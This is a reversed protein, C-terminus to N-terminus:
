SFKLSLPLGLKEFFAHNRQKAEDLLKSYSVFEVYARYHRKYGFFGQGDPTKELEAYRAYEELRNTKDAVIYCYFHVGESIPIPRKEPTLAKGARIEEIYDLVQKFPNEDDSYATRMPRKFEIITISQFPGMTVDTFACAKDFIILDLESKSANALPETKQLQKDSALYRHYALKEDLLWLNHREFPVEDSTAGMPFILRHVKDELAYKGGDQISLLKQLFQLVLKRDFVYRALDSQNVDSIKSFYESFQRAYAEFEEDGDASEFLERGEERLREQLSHLAKYLKLDLESDEVEPDLLAVENEVHKLIPRYMPGQTAVFREIRERKQKQISVTFPTLFSSVQECASSRLNSWTLGSEFLSGEESSLSFDTREQNATDDLIQGDLYGAYVFEKGAEDHMAKALNPIKGMLKESKVVRNNACFHLFHEKVHSSYLKVHLIAFQQESVQFKVWSANHTMEKEFLDNLNITEASFSDTLALSPHQPRILYELCHEVLYAGITEMRKPAVAQFREKFGKLRVVTRPKADGAASLENDEIGDGRPAFKFKRTMFGSSSEFTSEIEVQDFAVLWVFRGVGKGGKEAKYTTDSTSFAKFNDDNFGVGDDEIEFGIIDRNSKDIEILSPSQDRLIRIHITGERGSEEIAQISNVVAEFLPMLPRSNPLNVNRIRGRIDLLM